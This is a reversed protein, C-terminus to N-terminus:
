NGASNSVYIGLPTIKTTTKGAAWVSINRYDWSPGEAAKATSPALATATTMNLTVPFSQNASCSSVYAANYAERCTTARITDPQTAYYFFDIESYSLSSPPFDSGVPIGCSFSDITFPHRVCVGDAALTRWAASVWGAGGIIAGGMAGVLFVRALYGIKTDMFGRGREFRGKLTVVTGSHRAFVLASCEASPLSRRCMKSVSTPREGAGRKGLVPCTIGAWM